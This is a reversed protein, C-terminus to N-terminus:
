GNWDLKISQNAGHVELGKTGMPPGPMYATFEQIADLCIDGPLIGVADIPWYDVEPIAPLVRLFIEMNLCPADGRVVLIWPEDPNIGPVLEASHVNVRSEPQVRKMSFESV